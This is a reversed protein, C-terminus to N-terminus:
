GASERAEPASDTEPRTASSNALALMEDAFAAFFTFSKDVMECLAQSVRPQLEIEAISRRVEANELTHSSEADSHRAGLYHLPRGTLAVFQKAAGELDRVTVKFAGEICHVLVLKGISDAGMGLHCLHYSLMRTRITADSWILKIAESFQMKSDQGLAALDTLFWRWHGEDELSNANVLKQYKDSPPEEPLILTCLDAFTLVFHAVHPAFALKRQPQISPDRLFALFPTKAYEAMRQELRDMVQRM